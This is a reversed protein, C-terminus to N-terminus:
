QFYLGGGVATASNLSQDVKIFCRSLAIIGCNDNLKKEKSPFFRKESRLPWLLLNM